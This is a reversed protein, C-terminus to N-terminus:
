FPILDGNDDRWAIFQVSDILMGSFTAYLDDYTQIPMVKLNTTSIFILSHAGSPPMVLVIRNAIQDGNANPYTVFAEVASYYGIATQRITVESHEAGLGLMQITDREFSGIIADTREAITGEPMPGRAILVEEAFVGDPTRFAFKAYNGEYAPIIQGDVSTPSQLAFIAFHLPFQADFQAEMRHDFTIKTYLSEQSIARYDLVQSWAAVPSLVASLLALGLLVKKVNVAKQQDLVSLKLWLSGYKM